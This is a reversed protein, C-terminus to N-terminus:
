KGRSLFATMAERAEESAFLTASLAALEEGREDIAHEASHHIRHDLGATPCCGGLELDVAEGRDALAAELSAGGDHREGAAGGDDLHLDVVVAAGASEGM